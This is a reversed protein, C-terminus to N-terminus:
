IFINLSKFITRPNIFINKIPRIEFLGERERREAMELGEREREREERFILQKM